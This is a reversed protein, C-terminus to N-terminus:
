AMEAKAKNLAYEEILRDFDEATMMVMPIGRDAADDFRAKAKPDKISTSIRATCITGDDSPYDHRCSMYCRFLTM